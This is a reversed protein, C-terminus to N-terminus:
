PSCAQNEFSGCGCGSEAPFWQGTDHSCWQCSGAAPVRCTTCDYCFWTGFNVADGDASNGCHATWCGNPNLGGADCQNAGLPIECGNDWDDDCNGFGADCDFACSDGNCSGSANAGADCSEGCGGCNDDTDLPTECGDVADGNCDDWGDDCELAGCVGGECIATAHPSACPAAEGRCIGFGDCADAQTCADGDDCAAGLGKVDFKCMGGECTGQPQFCTTDDILCEGEGECTGLDPPFGPDEDGEGETPDFPTESDSNEPPAGDTWWNSTAGETTGRSEGIGPGFSGSSGGDAGACGLMLFCGLVAGGTVRVANMM